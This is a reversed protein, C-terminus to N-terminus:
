TEPARSRRLARDNDFPHPRRLRAVLHDTSLWRGRPDDPVGDDGPRDEGPLDDGSGGAIRWGEGEPELTLAELDGRVLVLRCGRFYERLIDRLVPAGRMPKVVVTRGGAVAVARLVGRDAAQALEDPLPVPPPDSVGALDLWGSREGAQRLAAVLKEFKVVPHVVRLLHPTM